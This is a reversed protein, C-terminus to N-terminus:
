ERGLSNIALALLGIARRKETYPDFEVYSLLRDMLFSTVQARPMAKSFERIFLEEHRRAAIFVQAPFGEKLADKSLKQFEVAWGQMIEAVLPQLPKGHTPDLSDSTLLSLLSDAAKDDTKAAKAVKRAVTDVGVPYSGFFVARRERVATVETLEGHVNVLAFSGTEPMTQGIGIAELLLASHFHVHTKRVLHECSERLRKTLNAGSLSVVFSIDIDKALRNQWAAVPYGNIRVEFIKEEVVQTQTEETSLKARETEIVELVKAKTLTTEKPLQFSVTKAQSIIWPASLVFHVSTVSKPIHVAEADKAHEELLSRHRRGLMDVTDTVAKLTTKVLYASTSGPKISMEAYATFLVLPKGGERYLVLSGRVASSQIEILFILDEIPSKAFLM